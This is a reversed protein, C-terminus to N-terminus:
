LAPLLINVPYNNRKCKVSKTMIYLTFFMAAPSFRHKGAKLYTSSPARILPCWLACDSRYFDRSEFISLSITITAIPSSDTDSEKQSFM